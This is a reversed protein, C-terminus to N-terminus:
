FCKQGGKADMKRGKWLNINILNNMDFANGAEIKPTIISIKMLLKTM